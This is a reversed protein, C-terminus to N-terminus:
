SHDAHPEGVEKKYCRNLHDVDNKTKNGTVIVYLVVLVAIINHM